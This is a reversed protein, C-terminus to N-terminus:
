KTVVSWDLRIDWEHFAEAPLVPATENDVERYVNAPPSVTADRGFIFDQERVIALYAKNLMLAREPSPTILEYVDAAAAVRDADVRGDPGFWREEMEPNSRFEGGGGVRELYTAIEGATEGLNPADPMGRLDIYGWGSAGDLKRPFSFTKDITAGVSTHCGMCFMTEEFTNRRLRGNRDEIFGQLVWGMKNDLGHDGRDIYGPLNGADKEYGEERYLEALHDQQPVYIKRMYRLEKMRTSVGIEGDDTVGVYRVSHLFETGLPYQSPQFYFNAAAGVFGDFRSIRTADGLERDGDLDKGVVAEDIPTTTVESLGKVIGEVIGLNAKYVDRSEVGDSTQRFQESLRIMVDDTSGNTPWFTSPLPKYNFAVWGSGDRAFGEADFAAAGHQLGELDPVYGKHGATQLRGALESYNDTAIWALIEADTIAAVASSRDEFLNDWHNVMGADSFSYALQLDGDNMTNESGPRENQHCVYCPNYRGETRTYCQPPIIAERNYMARVPYVDVSPPIVADNGRLLALTQEFWPADANTLPAADGPPAPASLSQSQAQAATVGAAAVSCLLTRALAARTLATRATPRRINM